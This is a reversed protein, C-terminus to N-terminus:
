EKREFPRRGTEGVDIPKVDGPADAIKKFVVDDWYVVGAPWYAYLGVRCKKPRYTRQARTVYVQPHCERQEAVWKGKETRCNIQTRGVERWQGQPESPTHLWDYYKVFIKCTPALTKVRYAIRYTAGPEIDFFDSFYYDGELGAVAESMRFVICKGDGDPNKEWHVENMQWDVGFPEWGDPHDKGTEFGEGRLLNPAKKWREEADPPLAAYRPDDRGTLEGLQKFVGVQLAYKNPVLISNEYQLKEPGLEATAVRTTIRLQEGEAQEVKGWMVQDAKLTNVAFDLADKVPMDFRPVFRAHREFNERDMDEITQFLKYRTIKARFNAAVFRGLEGKDFASEFDLVVLIPKSAVDGHSTFTESKGAALAAGALALALLPRLRHM